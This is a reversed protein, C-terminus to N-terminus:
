FPLHSNSVCIATGTNGGKLAKYVGGDKEVGLILVKCLVPAVTRSTTAIRWGTHCVWMSLIHALTLFDVFRCISIAATSSATAYAM